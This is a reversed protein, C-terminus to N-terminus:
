SLSCIATTSPVAFFKRLPPLFNLYPIFFTAMTWCVPSPQWLIKAPNSWLPVLLIILPFLLITSESFPNLGVFILDTIYLLSQLKGDLLPSSHHIDQKDEEEGGEDVEADLCALPSRRDRSLCRRIYLISLNEHFNKRLLIYRSKHLKKTM